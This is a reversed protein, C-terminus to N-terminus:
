LLDTISILDIKEQKVIIYIDSTILNKNIKLSAVLYRLLDKEDIGLRSLNSGAVVPIIIPYGQSRAGCYEILKQIAVVYEEVSVHASLKEDFTTLALFLYDDEGDGIEAVTGVDFRKRKGKRKLSSDVKIFELKQYGILDDLLKDYLEESSIKKKKCVHKVAQGHLTTTSILDDDVEIDFCRNVPIVIKRRDQKILNEDFIDGYQVYVTNQNAKFIQFCNRQKSYFKRIAIVFCIFFIVMLIVISILFRKIFSLNDPIINDLSFFTSIFGLITYTFAVFNITEKEIYKRNVKLKKLIKIM